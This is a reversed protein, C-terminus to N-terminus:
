FRLSLLYVKTELVGFNEKLKRILYKNIKEKEKERQPGSSCCFGDPSKINKKDILVFTQVESRSQIPQNTGQNKHCILKELNNLPLDM